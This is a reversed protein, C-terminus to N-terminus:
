CNKVSTKIKGVLKVNDNTRNELRKAFEKDVSSKVKEVIKAEYHEGEHAKKM